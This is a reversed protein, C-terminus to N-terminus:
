VWIGHQGKQSGLRDEDEMDVPSSLWTQAWSSDSHHGRSCGSGHELRLRDSHVTCSQVAM